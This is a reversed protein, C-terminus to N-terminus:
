KPLDKKTVLGSFERSKPIDFIYTVGNLNAEFHCTLENWLEYYTCTKNVAPLNSEAKITLTKGLREKIQNEVEKQLLANFALEIVPVPIKLAANYKTSSVKINSYDINISVETAFTFSMPINASVIHSGGVVQNVVPKYPPIDTNFGSTAPCTLDKNNDIWYGSTFLFKVESSNKVEKKDVELLKVTFYNCLWGSGSYMGDSRVHIQYIDGYNESFNIEATDLNNREFANGSIHPNLRFEESIGLTGYLIVFINSDTGAKSEDVTKVTIRYKSTAM